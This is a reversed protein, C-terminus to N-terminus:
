VLKDPKESMSAADASAVETCPLAGRNSLRGIQLEVLTSLEKGRQHMLSARLLSPAPLVAPAPLNGITYSTERCFLHLSARLGHRVSAGDATGLIVILGAGGAMCTALKGLSFGSFRPM